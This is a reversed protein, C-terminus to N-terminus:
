ITLKWATAQYGSRNMAKFPRFRNWFPWKQGGDQKLWKFVPCNTGNEFTLSKLGGDQKSCAMLKGPILHNRYEFTPNKSTWQIWFGIRYSWSMKTSFVFALVSHSSIKEKLRAVVMALNKHRCNLQSNRSHNSSRGTVDNFQTFRIYNNSSYSWGSFAFLAIM